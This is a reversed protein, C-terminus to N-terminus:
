ESKLSKVPNIIAAKISQYTVTVLTLMIATIAAFVFIWLSINTRYEYQQLWKGLSYASLPIAICCSIAVLVVFDGSMLKWLNFVSAGMVKRIGIERTRQEAIYSALGFLGLCSIFIALVAFITTLNGIRKEDNFKKEYEDTTLKYVFPSGPNYKRFVPEIKALGDSLSQGPKVRITILRAWAPNLHFITPRIPQYPSEMVMDKVVGVIVHEQDLWRITKGVPDKFGTAAVASENLIFAGTDAPFKRSFDRGEKITWQITNGFDHTVAITGPSFVTGPDKGKWEVVNNSWVTTPASNSEAMDAVAGTALLDNRIADYHGILDPTNMDVTLLGERTYGVPRNGAHQIQRYVVVTGIILAVSVTFQIVVLVKRPVGSLRSSKFSGKLVKIPKFGSLYFAPYSGSIIGTLFTFGTILIWFMPNTWPISMQKDALGNFTSLSLQVMLVAAALAILAMTLSETLFQVILQRRLSGIVKRIGVERSRKESRATSLNMFNICALILVFLGILGILWVTGIRGGVQKGNKYESYLHWNKMPQLMLEERSFSIHPTPVSKIKASTKYLDALPMLQVYLQCMHNEWQSEANKVWEETRYSKWPLLIKVDRFSTNYPLDRFVGAVKMERKNDLRVLQNVPDDNNFLAKAVSEAIMISTPEKLVDASGRVIRLSFMLPFAEQVWMGNNSLQKDGAALIHPGPQSALSIHKFDDRYKEELEYGMPQSVTSGTFTENGNTANVLVKALRNYQDHYKNFSLEDWVWLGITIAVAMGTALGVINLSSFMKNRALNRWAIKLYTKLM